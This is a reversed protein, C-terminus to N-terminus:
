ADTPPAAPTTVPERPPVWEGRLAARATVFDEVSVEGRAFRESLIIEASSAASPAAPGTNWPGAGPTPTAVVPAGHRRTDRALYVILVVVGALALVGLGLLFPHGGIHGRRGRGPGFDAIVHAALIRM